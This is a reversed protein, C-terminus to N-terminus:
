SPQPSTGDGERDTDIRLGAHVIDHAVEDLRRGSSFAYGRLRAYADRASVELQAMLMGTAQHIERSNQPQDWWQTLAVLSDGSGASLLVSTLLRAVSVADDFEHKDLLRGAGPYLSLWGVRIAGVQLPMAYVPGIGRAAAEEGYFPWRALSEARDSALVPGGTRYAEVGPGEGLTIQVLELGEALADSAALFEDGGDTSCVTIAARQVRLAEVCATCLRQPGSLEVPTQNVAAIFRARASVGRDASM